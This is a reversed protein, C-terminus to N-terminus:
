YSLIQTLYKKKSRMGQYTPINYASFAPLFCSCVLADILDKRSDFHRVIENQMSTTTLSVALRGNVIEHADPPLVRDLEAGFIRNVNFKPNFAGFPLNSAEKVVQLLLCLYM